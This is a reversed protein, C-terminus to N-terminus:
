GVSPESRSSRLAKKHTIAPDSAFAEYEPTGAGVLAIKGEADSIIGWGYRKTLPSSRLCAQGKSFFDARKHAYDAPELKNRLAYTMFLVDDSTHGYPNHSILEYEIRAISKEGEKEPPIEYRRVPSDEAIEIFTNFYNTTHM